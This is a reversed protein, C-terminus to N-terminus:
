FNARAVDFAGESDHCSDSFNRFLSVCGPCTIDYKKRLRMLLLEPSLLLVSSGRVVFDPLYAFIPSFRIQSLRPVVRAFM